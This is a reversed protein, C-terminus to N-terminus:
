GKSTYYKVVLRELRVQAAAYHKWDKDAKLDAALLRLTSSCLEYDQLMFALDALARLQGEVSQAGFPPGQAVAARPLESANSKARWLLNKIQNRVGRRTALVQM